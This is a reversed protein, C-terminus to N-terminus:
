WTGIGGNIGSVFEEITKVVVTSGKPRLFGSMLKEAAAASQPHIDHFLVVGRKEIGMQAVARRYVSNSDRDQWDLTDVNWNVHVMKQSAIMQRIQAKRAPNKRSFICSGYPCRFYSPKKGYALMDKQTSQEIETKLNGASMLDPHSFSHNALVHGGAKAAQVQSPYKLVNQALWFFSAKMGNTRLSSLIKDTWIPSPGDDFTLAWSDKAFQTGDIAGNAGASPFIIAGAVVGMGEVQDALDHLEASLGSEKFNSSSLASADPATRDLFNPEGFVAAGSILGGNPRLSEISSDFKNTNKNASFSKAANSLEVSRPIDLRGASLLFSQVEDNSEFTLDDVASIFDRAEAAFGTDGSASRLVGTGGVSAFSAERGAASRERDANTNLWDHSLVEAVLNMLALRSISERHTRFIESFILFVEAQKNARLRSHGFARLSEGMTNIIRDIQSEQIIRMKQIKRYSRSNLVSGVGLRNKESEASRDRLELDFDQVLAQTTLYTNIHEQVLSELRRQIRVLNQNEPFRLPAIAFEYRGAISDAMAVSAGSMSFITQIASSFILALFYPARFRVMRGIDFDFLKLRSSGFSFIRAFISIFSLHFIGSSSHYRM